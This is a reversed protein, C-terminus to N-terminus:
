RKLSGVQAYSISSGLAIFANQTKEEECVMEVIETCEEIIDERPRSILKEKCNEKPIERLEQVLDTRCMSKSCNGKVLEMSTSCVIEMETFQELQCRPPFGHKCPKDFCNTRTMNKCKTLEEECERPKCKKVDQMRCETLTCLVPSYDSGTDGINVGVGFLDRNRTEKLGPEPNTRKKVGSRPKPNTREQGISGPEHNTLEKLELELKPNMNNREKIASIKLFDFDQLHDPSFYQLSEKPKCVKEM